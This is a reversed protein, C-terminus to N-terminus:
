VFQKVDEELWALPIRAFSVCDAFSANGNELIMGVDGHSLAVLDSYSSPGPWVIRPASWSKAEDYSLWIGMATRSNKDTPGSYAVRSKGDDARLRAVSGVIGTWHSTVPSVLAKDTGTHSYSLGGDNSRAWMRHGPTKGMNRETVYIDSKGNGNDAKAQVLQSERSGAQAVGGFHWSGGHDDSFIVCSHDALNVGKDGHSSGNLCVFPVLLRGADLCPKSGCLDAELQLGHGVAPQKVTFPAPADPVSFLAPDAWTEGGDESSMLWVSYKKGTSTGQLFLWIKGTTADRVPSYFDINGRFLSQMQSWTRGGDSSRRLQLSGVEMPLSQGLM